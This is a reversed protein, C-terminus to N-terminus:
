QACAAKLVAVAKELLDMPINLAPLLRVRDKATLFLVGNELCQMVVERAPRATKVGIM